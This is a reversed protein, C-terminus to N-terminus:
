PEEGTMLWRACAEGLMERAKAEYALSDAPSLVDKWRGNTGKNIFTDAGGEWPM